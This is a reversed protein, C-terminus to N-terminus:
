WRKKAPIEGSVWRGHDNNETYDIPGEVHRASRGAESQFTLVVRHAPAVDFYVCLAPADEVRIRLTWVTVEEAFDPDAKQFFDYSTSLIEGQMTKGTNEEHWYARNWLHQVNPADVEVIPITKDGLATSTQASLGATVALAWVALLIAQIPKM